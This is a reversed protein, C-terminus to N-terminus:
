RVGTQVGLRQGCPRHRPLQVAGHRPRVRMRLPLAADLTVRPPRQEPLAPRGAARVGCDALWGVAVHLAGLATAALGGAAAHRPPHKRVTGPHGPHGRVGPPNWLAFTRLVPPAAVLVGALDLRRRMGGSWTKVPRGGAETLEFLELLEVARKRARPKGLHYLRGVM